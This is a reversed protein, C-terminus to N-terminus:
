LHVRVIANGFGHLFFAESGRGPDRGSRLPPRCGPRWGRAHDVGEAVTEDGDACPQYGIGTPVVGRSTPGGSGDAAVSPWCPSSRPPTSRGRPWCCWCTTSATPRRKPWEGTTPQASPTTRQPWSSRQRRKGSRGGPTTPGDATFAPPTDGTPGRRPGNKSPGGCVTSLRSGPSTETEAVPPRASIALPVTPSRRSSSPTETVTSTSPSSSSGTA